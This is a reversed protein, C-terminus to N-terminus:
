ERGVQEAIERPQPPKTHAIVPEDAAQLAFSYDNQNQRKRIAQRRILSSIAQERALLYPGFDNRATFNSKQSHGKRQHDAALRYIANAAHRMTNVTVSFPTKM